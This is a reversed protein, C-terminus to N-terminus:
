PVRRALRALAAALAYAIGAYVLVFKASACAAAIQPAPSAVPGRLMDLLAVNEIADFVAGVWAGWALLGGLSVLWHTRFVRRGWICALAIANSYALLFLYDLGTGFAAHIMDRDDWVAMVRRAAAVSGAVELGIIGQGGPDLLLLVTGVVLTVAVLPVFLVRVRGPPIRDFPHTVNM